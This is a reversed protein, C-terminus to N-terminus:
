GKIRTYRNIWNVEWTRGGDESFAQESRATDPTMSWMSFRVLVSRGNISECDYFEGHGQGFEGIMPVSRMGLQSTAFNLSWQRAQSDYLRLSLLELHGTPGDSEFEALKARGNWISGVVTTGHMEIWENSGSLPHLLRSTDTRWRGFRFDFDRHGACPPGSQLGAIAAVAAVAQALGVIGLIIAMALRVPASSM